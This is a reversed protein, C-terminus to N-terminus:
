ALAPIWLLGRRQVRVNNPQLRVEYEICEEAQRGHAAVLRNLHEYAEREIRSLDSEMTSLEPPGGAAVEVQFLERTFPLRSNIIADSLRTGAMLLIRRRESQLQELKEDGLGRPLPSERLQELLLKTQHALETLAPQIRLNGEERGRIVFDQRTENLRSYIRFNPNFYVLRREHRVLHNILDSEIEDLRAQDLGIPLRASRIGPRPQSELIEHTLDECATQSWDVALETAPLWTSYIQDTSDVLEARVDRFDLLCTFFVAPRYELLQPIKDQEGPGLWHEPVLSYSPAAAAEM